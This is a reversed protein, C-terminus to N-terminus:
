LDQFEERHEEQNTRCVGGRGSEGHDQNKWPEGKGLNLVGAGAGGNTHTHTHTHLVRVCARVCVHMVPNM